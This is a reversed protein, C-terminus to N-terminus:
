TLAALAPLAWGVKRALLRAFEETAPTGEYDINGSTRLTKFAILERGACEFTWLRVFDSRRGDEERWEEMSVSVPGGNLPEHRVKVRVDAGEGTAEGIYLADGVLVLAARRGDPLFAGAVAEPEVDPVTVRM